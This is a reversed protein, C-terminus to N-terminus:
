TSLASTSTPVALTTHSGNSALLLSTDNHPQTGQRRNRLSVSSDTQPTDREMIDIAVLVNLLVILVIEKPKLADYAMELHRKHRKHRKRAFDELEEVAMGEIEEDTLQRYRKYINSPTAPVSSDAEASPAPPTPYGANPNPVFIAARYGARSPVNQAVPRAM